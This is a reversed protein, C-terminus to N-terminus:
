VFLHVRNEAPSQRRCDRGSRARRTLGRVLHLLILTEVEHNNIRTIHNHIFQVLQRLHMLVSADGNLRQQKCRQVRELHIILQVLTTDLRQAHLSDTSAANVRKHRWARIQAQQQQCHQVTLLLGHTTGHRLSLNRASHLIFVHLRAHLFHVFKQYFRLHIREHVPACDPRCDWHLVVTLQVCPNARRTLLVQHSENQVSYDHKTGRKEAM